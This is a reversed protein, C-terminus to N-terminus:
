NYHLSCRALIHTGGGTAAVSELCNGIERMHIDLNAVGGGPPGANTADAYGAETVSSRVWNGHTAATNDQMAVDAIGGIVVWAEADDAVGSELFVGFSEEDDAGTLVVADDTTTDCIVSQGAITVAGTTNTLKICFGGISTHGSKGGVDEYVATDRYTTINTGDVKLIITGSGDGADDAEITLSEEAIINSVAATPFRLENGTIVIDGSVRFKTAVVDLETDATENHIFVDADSGFSIRGDNVAGRGLLINNGFTVDGGNALFSIADDEFTAVIVEGAAGAVGTNAAIQVFGNPGRNNLRTENAGPLMLINRIDGLSDTFVISEGGGGNTGTFQIFAAASTILIDDGIDVDGAFSATTGALTIVTAGGNSLILPTEISVSADITTPTLAGIVALDNRVTTTGTAAGIDVVTAAGGFNITTPTVDLLGVTATGSLIAAGDMTFTGDVQLNGSEDCSLVDTGAGNRLLLNQAGDNDLDIHIIIDKDSALIFDTDVDGTVSTLRTTGDEINNVADQVETVYLKTVTMRVPTGSDFGLAATGGQARTIDITDGAVGTGRVIEFGQATEGLTLEYEVAGFGAADGARVDLTADGALIAGDLTSSQLNEMKSWTTTVAM